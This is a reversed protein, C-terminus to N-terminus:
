TFDAVIKLVGKKMSAEFAKEVDDFKYTASILPKVDVLKKELARVAPAFPGCRSGMITIEDIVVPALNLPKGEATTSKLVITGRPRTLNMATELGEPTGTAEVVIDFHKIEKIEGSIVTKVGQDAAIKLKDAHRGALIVEAQTLNLALAILLGLKGDGLVVIKDTPKVHLQETIEFAAALPEVFVAEEDAVNDPIEFLNEVPLTIYDAFCGNKGFIGLVTRTTCHTKLGKHCLPCEGCGCNIEGVVRKNLM